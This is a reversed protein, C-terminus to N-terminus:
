YKLKIETHISLLVTAQKLPLFFLLLILHGVQGIELKEGLSLLTKCNFSVATWPFTM